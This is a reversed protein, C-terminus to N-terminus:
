SATTRISNTEEDSSDDDSSGGGDEGGNSIEDDNNSDGSINEYWAEPHSWVEFKRTAMEYRVVNHPPLSNVIQAVENGCWERIIEIDEPLWQRMLFLEDVQFRIRTAFDKPRHSAQILYFNKIDALRVVKRLKPHAKMGGQLFWAEDVILIVPRLNARIAGERVGLHYNIGLTDFFASFEEAMEDEDNETELDMPQYSIAQAPPNELMDEFVGLDSSHPVSNFTRKPDFIPIVLANRREQIRKALFLSLTSKGEGRNGIVFINM